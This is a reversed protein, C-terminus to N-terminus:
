RIPRQSALSLKANELDSLVESRATTVGKAVIKPFKEIDAKAEAVICSLYIEADSLYSNFEAVADNYSPVNYISFFPQAPRYCSSSPKWQPAYIIHAFVIRIM